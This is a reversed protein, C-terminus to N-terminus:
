SRRQNDRRLDDLSAPRHGTRCVATRGRSGGWVPSWKGHIAHQDDPRHWRGEPRVLGGRRDASGGRTAAISIEARDCGCVAMTRRQASHCDVHELGTQTTSELLAQRNRSGPQQHRGPAVRDAPARRGGPPHGALQLRSGTRVIRAVVRGRHAQRVRRCHQRPWRGPLDTERRGGISPLRLGVAPDRLRIATPLDHSWVVSGDTVRLCYLNGEAGLSYVRDGDVTPTARPGAPYSINYPRAYEHKWLLQGDAASLCLVRETGELKDRRSASPIPNKDTVYDMVFVRGDAVAPGAFGGGVPHRWLVPPGAAPFTDLIGTERWVSDRQPGLWQPWDDGRVGAPLVAVLIACARSLRRFTPM